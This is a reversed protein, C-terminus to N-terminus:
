SPADQDYPPRTIKVHRPRATLVIPADQRRRWLAFTHLVSVIAAITLASVALVEAVLYRM